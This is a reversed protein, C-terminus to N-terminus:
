YGLTWAAFIRVERDEARLAALLPPVSEAGTLALKRMAAMRAKWGADEIGRMYGGAKPESWGDAAWKEGLWELVAAPEDPMPEAECVTAAAIVVTALVLVSANFPAVAKFAM